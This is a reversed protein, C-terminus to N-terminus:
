MSERTLHAARAQTAARRGRGPLPAGASPAGALLRSEIRRRERDLAAVLEALRRAPIRPLIAAVGIAAVPEQRFDRIPVGISRVGETFLGNSFAYGRRRAERIATRLQAVTASTYQPLRGAVAELIDASEGEPLAALIAMGSAGVGLPRRTGVDVTLAKIPFAGSRRDICVADFGSRVVVFVTDGCEDALQMASHTAATRLDQQRHAVSWGLVALEHGLRYRLTGGDVMVLGNATLSQLLRHVTPKSLGTARQLDVLRMGEEGSSGIARLVAVARDLLQLAV